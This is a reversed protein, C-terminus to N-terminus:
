SDKAAGDEAITEHAASQQVMEPTVVNETTGGVNKADRHDALSTVGALRSANQARQVLEVETIGFARAILSIDRANLTVREGTKPNGGDLRFSIYQSSEGILRGLARSSLGRRGREAKIESVLAESFRRAQEQQHEGMCCTKCKCSKNDIWIVSKVTLSLDNMSAQM